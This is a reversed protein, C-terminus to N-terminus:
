KELIEKLEKETLKSLVLQDRMEGEIVQNSLEKKKMQLDIIKEEITGKAILKIVEVVHKQGIRHTRDTAQNEVQPNWWPDLHIVIDASTLNLGTGGAKLSILFVNTDDQNFSDVLELRTISKTSGDLYYSTIKQHDLEKKLLKLASPFQSFILVKHGNPLVGNLIDILAEFKSSEMKEHDVVLNPAICIQRLKTLLSLILIQSKAFGDKGLSQDIEEKTKQLQTYYLKKQQENLEVLVNNEIKDPLDQLVDSKKRRLIFPSIQKNLQKLCDPNEEMEKVSYRVRFKTLNPLLGPLIFDFISWLELVSNEIPTGTLAFKTTASIMKVSKSIETTVNKIAQAEDIICTHFTIAQYQEKDQRLLGYTTIFVSADSQEIQNMRKVKTDYIVEYRIEPGFKEFEHAWNFILSTPVVILFKADPHEKLCYRLYYITQISKGLGMEDALIGGFGCKALTVMWRVGIQQYDRLLTQEEKTFQIETTQYQKMQKVLDKYTDEFQVFSYADELLMGKYKPLEVSGHKLQQLPMDLEETLTLFQDLESDLSLFDGSKLRYYKKKSRIARFLQDMEASDLHEIEFEYKLINDSGIGFSSRITAKPYFHIEKLNKSVYTEYKESIKPLGYQLFDIMDEEKKLSFHHEEKSFHYQYLEHLYSSELELDRVFYADGFQNSSETINLEQDGYVLKISAIIQDELKEFYYKVTPKEFLFTNKLSDALNMKTAKKLKPFILNSFTGYEEKKFYIKKRNSEMMVRLFNGNEKGVHYLHEGDEFYSYDRTFPVFHPYNVILELKDAVENLEAHIPTDELIGHFHYNRYGREVLFDREKLQKLFSELTSDTLSISTVNKKYYNYYSSQNDEKLADVYFKAFELIKQDEASFFCEEPNYIFNKGFEVEGFGREMCEFFTELNKKLVYKKDYGIKLQLEYHYDGLEKLLIDLYVQKTKKQKSLEQFLQRNFEEDYDSKIDAIATELLETHSLLYMVALAIHPCNDKLCSCKMQKVSNNKDIVLEMHIEDYHFQFSLWSTMKQYGDYILKNNDLSLADVYSQVGVIKMVDEVKAIPISMLIVEFVRM